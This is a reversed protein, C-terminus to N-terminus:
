LTGLSGEEAAKLAVPLLPPATVRMGPGCIYGARTATGTRGADSSGPQGAAAPGFQCAPCEGCSWGPTRRSPTSGQDVGPTTYM